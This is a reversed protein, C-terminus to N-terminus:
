LLVGQANKTVIQTMLYIVVCMIRRHPPSVDSEQSAQSAAVELKAVGKIQIQILCSIRSQIQCLYLPVPSSCKWPCHIPNHSEM